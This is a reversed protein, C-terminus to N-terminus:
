WSKQQWGGDGGAAAPAAYPATNWGGGGGGKGKDKGKGDGKGGGKPRPGGTGGAIKCAQMQGPKIPSPESEFTVTDGEQVANGDIVQKANFFLDEGSAQTIFGFGKDANWKKVTGTLSGGGGGASAGWGGAAAPASGSGGGKGGGAGWGGAAGGAAGGWGGAAGGKGGGKGKVPWGSGGSVNGAQMEGPKTPSDELDFKVNDGVVLVSGDKVQKANVFIDMGDHTIFGYGKDALYTKVVGDFTGVGVTSNAFAAPMVFSM